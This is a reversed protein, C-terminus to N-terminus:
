FSLFILFILIVISLSLFFSIVENEVSNFGDPGREQIIESLLKNEREQILLDTDIFHYGLVKALVIGITSKGAGSMGIIGFIDGDEITLNINNIATFEGNETSFFKSLNIIEIM